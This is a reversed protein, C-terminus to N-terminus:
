YGLLAGEVAIIGPVPTDINGSDHSNNSGFNFQTLDIEGNALSWQNFYKYSYDEEATFRVNNVRFEDLSFAISLQEHLYPPLQFTELKIRRKVRSSLNITRGIGDTFVTRSPPNTLQFFRAKVRIHHWIGTLYEVENTQDYNRYTVLCTDEHNALLHIPEGVLLYPDFNDDTGEMKVSYYGNALGTLNLEAEVINYETPLVYDEPLTAVVANFVTEELTRVNTLTISNNEYSSQWQIKLLDCKNVLQYYCSKKHGPYVQDHFLTNDVTQFISCNNPTVSPVFRLSNVIPVFVHPVLIIFEEITFAEQATCMASDRVYLIHDGPAIGTFNGSSQWLGSDLKYQVGGAGSTAAITATGDNEDEGTEDTKSFSTITLDCATDTILIDNEIAFCGRSDRVYVDYTGAPLGSLVNSTQWNITDISYEIPGDDSTATVTISGTSQGNTDNVVSTGTIILTCPDDSVYEQLFYEIDSGNFENRTAGFDWVSGDSKAEIKTTHTVSDYTVNYYLSSFWTVAWSNFHSAAGPTMANVTDYIKTQYSGAIYANHIELSDGVVTDGLTVTISSKTAM